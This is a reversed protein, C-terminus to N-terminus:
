MWALVHPTRPNLRLMDFRYRKPFGTLLAKQSMRQLLMSLMHSAVGASTVVGPFILYFCFVMLQRWCHRSAPTHWM